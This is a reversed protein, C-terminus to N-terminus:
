PTQFDSVPALMERVAFIHSQIINFMLRLVRFCHLLVSRSPRCPQLLLTLPHSTTTSPFSSIQFAFARTKDLNNHRSADSVIYRYVYDSLQRLCKVNYIGRTMPRRFNGPSYPTSDPTTVSVLVISKSRSRPDM